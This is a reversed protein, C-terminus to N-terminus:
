GNCKSPNIYGDIVGILFVLIGGFIAIKTMIGGRVEELEEKKM